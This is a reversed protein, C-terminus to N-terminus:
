WLTIKLGLLLNKFLFYMEFKLNYDDIANLYQFYTHILEAKLRMKKYM